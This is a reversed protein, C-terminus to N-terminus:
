GLMVGHDHERGGVPQWYAIRKLLNVNKGKDTVVREIERCLDYEQRLRAFMHRAALEWENMTSYDLQQEETFM